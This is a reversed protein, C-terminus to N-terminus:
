TTESPKTSLLIRRFNHVLLSLESLTGDKLLSNARWSCIIVNGEVYGRSSDIRDLSKSHNQQRKGRNKTWEIPIKLYPCIDTDISDLYEPTLDFDLGKKKARHKADYCARTTNPM